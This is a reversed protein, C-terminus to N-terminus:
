CVLGDCLLIHVEASTIWWGVHYFGDHLPQQIFLHLRGELLDELKLYSNNRKSGWVFLKHSAGQSHMGPIAIRFLM